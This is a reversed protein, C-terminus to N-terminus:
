LNIRLNPVKLFFIHEAVVLLERNASLMEPKTPIRASFCLFVAQVGKSGPAMVKEDLSRNIPYWQFSSMKLNGVTGLMVYKPCRFVELLKGSFFHYFATMFKSGFLYSRPPAASASLSLSRVCCSATVCLM